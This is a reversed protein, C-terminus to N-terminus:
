VTSIEKEKKVAFDDADKCAKDTLDQIQKELRKMEDEAIIGDSKQKRVAENADRRLNRIVVKAKECEEHCRTIMKKRQTGDMEPIKIRIANGDVIVLFGLNAKEISKAIPGKMQHDFPNILLQRPEPATITALEKIRMQGGYAEITVGEVMGPTARGTRITKLEEKFHEIAAAMKTKAQDLYQNM